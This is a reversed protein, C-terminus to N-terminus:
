AADLFEAGAATLKGSEPDVLHSDRAFTLLNFIRPTTYTYEGYEGDVLCGDDLTFRYTFRGGTALKQGAIMLHNSIVFKKILNAITTRANSKQALDLFKFFGEASRGEVTALTLEDRVESEESWRLWLSFLLKASSVIAGANPNKKVSAEAVLESGLDHELGLSPLAVKLAFEATSANADPVAISALNTALIEISTPERVQNSLGVIANLWVELAIHCFENIFYARWGTLNEIAHPAEGLRGSQVYLERRMDFEGDADAVIALINRLTMRRPIATPDNARGGQLFKSLLRAEESTPDLYSPHLSTSIKECDSRSIQGSQIAILLLSCAEPHEQQVAMALTRGASSSVGYVRTSTTEILKMELMSATYFQGFNGYKAKLYQDAEGPRNTPKILDFIHKSPDAADNRWWDSGAMGVAKASDGIHCALAIAAESRRIFKVWKDEKSTHHIQEFQWLVWCYFSYYRLRNTVNTLGPVLSTYLRVSAAQFGLPDRGASFNGSKTWDTIQSMDGGQTKGFLGRRIQILKSARTIFTPVTM